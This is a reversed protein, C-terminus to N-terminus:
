RAKGTNDLQSKEVTIFVFSDEVKCDYNAIALCELRLNRLVNLLNFNPKSNHFCVLSSFYLVVSFTFKLMFPNMLALYLLHYKLENFLSKM